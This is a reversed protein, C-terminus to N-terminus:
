RKYDSSCLGENVGKKNNQFDEQNGRSNSISVRNKGFRNDKMNDGRRAKHTVLMWPGFQELVKLNVDVNEVRKDGGIEVGAAAVGSKHSEKGYISQTVHEKVIGDFNLSCWEKNHGYVECNFCVTHIGEYEVKRVRRKVMFESKLPKPLIWKLVCGRLCVGILSTLQM